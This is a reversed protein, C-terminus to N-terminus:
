QATRWRQLAAGDAQTPEFWRDLDPGIERKWLAAESKLRDMLYENAEFATARHASATGVFVIPAGANVRGCRHVITAAYIEFRELADGGITAISANSMGPYWDLYLGEVVKGKYVDRVSGTFTTVAGRNGWQRIFDHALCAADIPAEQLATFLAPAKM